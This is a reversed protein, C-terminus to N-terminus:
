EAGRRIREIRPKIKDKWDYNEEVYEKAKQGAERREEESMEYVERMRDGLSDIDASAWQSDPPYNNGAYNVARTQPEPQELDFDQVPIMGPNDGDMVEAQSSWDTFLTPTGCWAAEVQAIGFCEARSAQLFCDAQGMVDYVQQKDVLNDHLGIQPPDSYGVESIIAQVSKQPDFEFQNNSTTKVMLRVNDRARFEEAYAKITQYLGKIQHFRSVVLFTFTDDRLCPQDAINGSTHMNNACFTCSYDTPKYDMNIGYHFWHTKEVIEPHSDEFRSKIANYTWQSPVWVEDVMGLYHEWERPVKSLNFDCSLVTHIDEDDPASEAFTVGGIGLWVDEKGEFQQVMLARSDITTSTGLEESMDPLEQQAREADRSTDVIYDDNVYGNNWIMHKFVPDGESMDFRHGENNWGWHHTRVNIDFDSDTIMHKILGKSAEGFGSGGTDAGIYVKM